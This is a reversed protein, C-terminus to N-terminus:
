TSKVMETSQEVIDRPFGFRCEKHNFKFCTFSHSHTNVFSVLKTVDTELKADLNSNNPNPPRQVLVAYKDTTIPDEQDSSTHCAFSSCTEPSQQKIISSLYDLVNQKFQEDFQMRQHLDTPSNYWSVWLVMHLHLTGRGQEEVCGYYGSVDGFIGGDVKKYRMICSIFAKIVIRFYQAAAVPNEAVLQARNRSSPLNQTIESNLDIDEGSLFCVIPSHIDAPNLTIFFAPMGLSIMLSQIERRFTQRAYPTGRVKSGVSRIQNMLTCVNQNPKTGSALSQVADQLDQHSISSISEAVPSSHLALSTRLCVERKQLVNFVHFIFPCDRRFRGDHFCLLHKIWRKMSVAVTRPIEPGGRQYPFLYPYGGTWMDANNYENVPHGGHPVVLTPDHFRKAAAQATTDTSVSTTNVDLVGSEETIIYESSEEDHGKLVDDISTGTYGSHELTNAEVDTCYSLAEWICDPIDGNPLIDLNSQKIPINEYQGHHVKLFKLAGAVKTKRVEFMKMLQERTPKRTGIFVVKLMEPLSGMDLPLCTSVRNIDQPFTISNGKIAYQSTNPGAIQKLKIVCMRTRYCSILMKEPITLGCMEPPLIGFQFGNALSLAPLRNSMLATLCENCCNASQGEVGEPVLIMGCVKYEDLADDFGRKLLHKNPFSEINVPKTSNSM